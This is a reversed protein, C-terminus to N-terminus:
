FGMKTGLDNYSTSECVCTKKKKPSFIWFDRKDYNVLMNSKLESVSPYSSQSVSQNATNADCYSRISPHVRFDIRQYRDFCINSHLFFIFYHYNSM